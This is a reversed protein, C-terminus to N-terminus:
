AARGLDVEPPGIGGRGRVMGTCVLWKGCVPCSEPHLDGQAACVAQWSQPEADVERVEGLEARVHALSAAKSAHYLGYCRVVQTRLPVVHLLVHRIFEEVPLRM